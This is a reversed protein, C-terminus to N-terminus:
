YYVISPIINNHYKVIPLRERGRAESIKNSIRARQLRIGLWKWVYVAGRKMM